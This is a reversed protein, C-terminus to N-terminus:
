SAAAVTAPIAEPMLFPVPLSGDASEKTVKVVPVLVPVSEVVAAAPAVYPKKAEVAAPAARLIEAKVHTYEEKLAQIEGPKEMDGILDKDRDEWSKEVKELNKEIAKELSLCSAEYYSRLYLADVFRPLYGKFKKYEKKFNLIKKTTKKLLSIKKRTEAFLLRLEEVFSLHFVSTDVVTTTEKEGFFRVVYKKTPRGFEDAEVVEKLFTAFRGIGGAVGMLSVIVTELPYFYGSNKSTKAKKSNNTNM